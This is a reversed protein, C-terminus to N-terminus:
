GVLGEDLLEYPWDWCGIMRKWLRRAAISRGVPKAICETHIADQVTKIGM